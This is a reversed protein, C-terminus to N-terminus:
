PGERSTISSESAKRAFSFWGRLLLASSFKSIRLVTFRRTQESSFGSCFDAAAKLPRLVGGVNVQVLTVRDKGNQSAINVDDKAFVNRLEVTDDGAGSDIAIDRFRVADPDGKVVVRDNVDKSVVVVDTIGTFTVISKRNIPAVENVKTLNFGAFTVRNSLNGAIEVDNAANDGTVTLVGNQVAANINGVPM